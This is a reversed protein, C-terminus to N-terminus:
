LSLLYELILSGPNTTGIATTANARIGGMLCDLFNDFKFVQDPAGIIDNRKPFSTTYTTKTPINM